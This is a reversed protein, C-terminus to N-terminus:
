YSYHITNLETEIARLEDQKDALNQKIREIVGETKARSEDLKDWETQMETLKTEIDKNISDIDTMKGGVTMMKQGVKTLLGEMVEGAGLSNLNTVVSGLNTSLNDLDGYLTELSTKLNTYETMKNELNTIKTKTLALIDQQANLRQTYDAIDSKCVDRAAGLESLREMAEEYSGM